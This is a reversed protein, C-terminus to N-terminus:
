LVAMVTNSPSSEGPQNKINEETTAMGRQM